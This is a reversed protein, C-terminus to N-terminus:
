RGELRTRPARISETPDGSRVVPTVKTAGARKAIRGGDDALVQAVQEAAQYMVGIESPDASPEADLPTGQTVELNLSSQPRKKPLLHEVEALHRTADDMVAPSFVYLVKLESDFRSAMAGAFTLARQANESGDTAVLVKELM